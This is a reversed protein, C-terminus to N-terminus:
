GERLRHRHGAQRFLALHLSSLPELVFARLIIHCVLVYRCVTVSKIVYVVPKLVFMLPCMIPYMLPCMIAYMLPCMIVYCCAGPSRGVDDNVHGRPMTCSALRQQASDWDSRGCTSGGGGGRGRQREEEEGGRNGRERGCVVRWRGTSSPHQTTCVCLRM